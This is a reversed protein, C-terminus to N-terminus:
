RQCEFARSTSWIGRDLDWKDWRVYQPGQGTGERMIAPVATGESDVAWLIVSLRLGSEKKRGPPVAHRFYRNFPEDFAFVDGNNQLVRFQRGSPAHEFVLERSEGLSLGITMTPRPSRDRYNDHHWSKSEGGDRYVNVWCDVLSVDFTLLLRAVIATFTDSGMLKDGFVQLHRRSRHLRLVDGCEEIESLLQQALSRDGAPCGLAPIHVCGGGALLESDLPLCKPFTPSAMARRLPSSGPVAAHADGSARLSVPRRLRNGRLGHSPLISCPATPRTALSALFRMGKLGCIHLLLAPALPRAAPM